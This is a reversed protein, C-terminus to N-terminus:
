KLPYEPFINTEQLELIPIYASQGDSGFSNSFTVQDRFRNFVVYKEEIKKDREFFYIMKGGGLSIIQIFYVHKGNLEIYQIFPISSVIIFRVFDDFSKMKAYNILQSM